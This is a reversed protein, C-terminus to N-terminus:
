QQYSGTDKINTHRAQCWQSNTDKTSWMIKLNGIRLCPRSFVFTQSILNNKTTSLYVYVTAAWM